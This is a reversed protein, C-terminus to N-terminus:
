LLSWGSMKKDLAEIKIKFDGMETLGFMLFLFVVLAFGIFYNLQVAAARFVGIFWSSDFSNSLDLTFIEQGDLWQNVRMYLSQFRAANAVAWHGVDSISWVIAFVLILIVLLTFLITLTLAIPKGMRVEVAKQFPWVLAMAFLMFAVPEFLVRGFYLAASVLVVAFLAPVIQDRRAGTVVAEESSM